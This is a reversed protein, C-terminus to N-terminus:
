NEDPAPSNAARKCRNQKGLSAGAIAKGGSAATRVGRGAMLKELMARFLEDLFAAEQELATIKHDCVHLLILPKKLPFTHGASKTPM